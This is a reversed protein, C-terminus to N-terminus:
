AKTKARLPRVARNRLFSKIRGPGTRGPRTSDRHEKAHESVFHRIRQRKQKRESPMYVDQLARIIEGNTQFREEPQYAFGHLFIQQADPSLNSNQMENQIYQNYKKENGYLYMITDASHTGFINKGTLTKYALATYSWTIASPGLNRKPFAKDPGCYQPTFFDGHFPEGVKNMNELDILVPQNTGRRLMINEPKLDGPMLGEQLMADLGYGVGRLISFRKQMDIDKAKIGEFLTRGDIFDMVYYPREYGNIMASGTGHGHPVFPTLKWLKHLLTNAHLFEQPTEEAPRRGVKVVVSQGDPLYSLFTVATGGEGLHEIIPLGNIDVKERQYERLSTLYKEVKRPKDLPSQVIDPKTKLPESVAVETM